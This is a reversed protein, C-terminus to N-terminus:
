GDLICYKIAKLRLSRARSRDMHDPCQLHQLYHIIDQYWDSQSFKFLPDVIDGNPIVEETPQYSISAELSVGMTECNEETLVKALGQGKVLKTPKIELDYEQIKTIWRGRKGDSDSQILLDKIASNPIYSIIKSHLVYDCFYKLAKM